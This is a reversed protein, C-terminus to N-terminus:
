VISHYNSKCLSRRTYIPGLFANPHTLVQTPGVQQNASPPLPCTARTRHKTQQGSAAGKRQRQPRPHAAQQVAAAGKDQSPSTAFTTRTPRLPRLHQGQTSTNVSPPGSATVLCSVSFTTPTSGLARLLLFLLGSRDFDRQHSFFV